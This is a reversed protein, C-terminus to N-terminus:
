GGHRSPRRGLRTQRALKYEGQTMRPKTSLLKVDNEVMEEVLQDFTVRHTWGLTKRAKSADGVLM